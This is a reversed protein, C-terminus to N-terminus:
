KIGKVGLNIWGHDYGRVLNNSMTEINKLGAKSLTRKLYKETFLGRHWNHHYLSGLGDGYTFMRGAGWVIPDKSDNFRYWSDLYTNDLENEEYDVIIKCIKYADPVWIELQGKDKLIRILEIFIKEVNYWPIHELIHSCYIIDFSSEKFPTIGKSIDIIYDVMKGDIINLTEFKEIRENGPGIELCRYINLSNKKVNKATKISNKIKIIRKLHMRKLIADIRDYIPFSYIMKCKVM